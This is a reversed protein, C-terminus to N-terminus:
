RKSIYIRQCHRHIFHVMILNLIFVVFHNNLIFLTWESKNYTVRKFYKLYKTRKHGSNSSIENLIKNIRNAENQLAIEIMCSLGKVTKLISITEIRNPNIELVEAITNQILYHSYSHYTKIKDCKVILKYVTKNLNNGNKYSCLRSILTLSGVMLSLISFFMATFTIIDIQLKALKIVLLQTILLPINELLINNFFRFQRLKYKEALSLQM